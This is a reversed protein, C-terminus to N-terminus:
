SIPFCLKSHPREPLGPRGKKDTAGAFAPAVIM